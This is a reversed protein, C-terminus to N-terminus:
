RDKKGKYQTYSSYSSNYSNRRIFKQNNRDSVIYKMGFSFKFKYYSFMNRKMHKSSSFINYKRLFVYNCRIHQFLIGSSLGLKQDGYRAIIKWTRHILIHMWINIFSNSGFRSTLMLSDLNIILKNNIQLEKSIM